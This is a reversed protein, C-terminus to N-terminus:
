ELHEEQLQQGIDDAAQPLLEQARKLDKRGEEPRKLALYAQGRYYYGVGMQQDLSLAVTLDDIAGSYDSSLYKAVGRNGYAEAYKPNLQIARTNDEIEGKYDGTLGKAWGRSMFAIADNPNLEIARTLDRIGGMYDGM